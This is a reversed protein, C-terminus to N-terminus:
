NVPPRRLRATLSRATRYDFEMEEADVTGDANRPLATEPLILM